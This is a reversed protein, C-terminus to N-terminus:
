GARHLITMNSKGLESLDVEDANVIITFNPRTEYLMASNKIMAQRTPDSLFAEQLEKQDTIHQRLSAILSEEFDKLHKNATIIEKSELINM